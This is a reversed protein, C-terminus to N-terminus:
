FQNECGKKDDSQSPKPIWYTQARPDFKMGLSDKSFVRAVIGIPTVVCYFLVALIVRTVFWGMILAFSMWIKQIPKLVKPFTLGFFLLFSAILIFWPATDKQRWLFLLGLLGFVTGVTIAFRRLEKRGSKINKIEEILM